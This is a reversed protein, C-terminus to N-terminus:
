ALLTKLPEPPPNLPPLSVKESACCLGASEDKYKFAHCHQCEKDMNGIIILAYRRITQQRAERQRLTNARLRQDRQKSIENARTSAVQDRLNVNDTSHEEATRNLRRDHVLQAHQTRRGINRARGRLCTIKSKKNLFDFNKIKPPYRANLGAEIHMTSVKFM